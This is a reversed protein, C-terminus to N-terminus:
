KPRRGLGPVVCFVRAGHLKPQHHPEQAHQPQTASPQGGTHSWYAHRQPHRLWLPRGDQTAVHRGQTETGYERPGTGLGGGAGAVATTSQLEVQAPQSNRRQTAERGVGLRWRPRKDQQFTCGWRHRAMCRTGLLSGTKRQPCCWHRQKSQKRTPTHRNRRGTEKHPRFMSVKTRCLLPPFPLCTRGCIRLRNAKICPLRRKLQRPKRTINHSWPGGPQSPQAPATRV